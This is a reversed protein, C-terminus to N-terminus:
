EDVVSVGPPINEIESPILLPSTPRAGNLVRWVEAQLDEESAFHIRLSETGENAHAQLRDTLIRTLQELAERIRQFPVQYMYNPIRM